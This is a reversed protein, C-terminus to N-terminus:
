NILKIIEDAYDDLVADLEKDQAPTAGEADIEVSEWVRKFDVLTACLEQYDSGSESDYEINYKDAINDVSKIGAAFEILDTFLEEKQSEITNDNTGTVIYQGRGTDSDISEGYTAEEIAYLSGNEEFVNSFKEKDQEEIENIVLYKDNKSKAIIFEKEIEESTGTVVNYQGIKWIQSM